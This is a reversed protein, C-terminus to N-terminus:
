PDSPEEKFYQWLSGSIKSYNKSCELLNYRPTVIDLDKANGVYTKKKLLCSSVAACNKLIWRRDQRDRAAAGTVRINRKLVIYSDNSDWM